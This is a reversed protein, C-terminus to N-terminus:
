KSFREGRMFEVYRAAQEPTRFRAHPKGHNTVAAAYDPLDSPVIAWDGASFNPHKYAFRGPATMIAVICNDLIGGGGTSRANHILLPIRIKGMSRGVRGIVEFEDGWSLGTETDGYFLRIRAGSHRANELAAKVADPTGFSYSTEAREVYRAAQCAPCDVKAWYRTGEAHGDGTRCLMEPRDFRAGNRAAESVARHEYESLQYHM